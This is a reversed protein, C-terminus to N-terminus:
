GNSNALSIIGTTVKKHSLITTSEHVRLTTRAINQAKIALDHQNIIKTMILRNLSNDEALRPLRNLEINLLVIITIMKAIM